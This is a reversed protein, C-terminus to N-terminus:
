YRLHVKIMVPDSEKVVVRYVTQPPPDDQTLLRTSSGAQQESRTWTKGAGGSLEFTELKTTGWQKEWSATQEASLKIAKPGIEFGQLREKTLLVTLEEETQGPRSPRLTFFNPRDEQAPIDVLKGASVKNDGNHIRTSPFILYPEGREGSGFLERDIVYLYGADPSEISLRVRDGQKLRSTSAVREPIFEVTGADDQVLIRAGSDSAAAPRLHWITVGIQRANGAPRSTNPAEATTAKYIPKAAAAAPATKSQPRAKLVEEPVISRTQAPLVSVCLCTLVFASLTRATNKMAM